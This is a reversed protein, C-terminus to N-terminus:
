PNRLVIQHPEIGSSPFMAIIQGTAVNVVSIDSSNMNSIYAVGGDASFAIGHPGDGSIPIERVVSLSNVDIVSVTDSGLNTVLAFRQDPTLAVYEPNNGVPITKIIEHRIADIVS